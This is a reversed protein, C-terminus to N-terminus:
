GRRHYCRFVITIGHHHLHTLCMIINVLESEISFSYSYYKKDVYTWLSDRNNVQHLSFIFRLHFDLRGRTEKWGITKCLFRATTLCLLRQTMEIDNHCWRGRKLYTNHRAGCHLWGGCNFIRNKLPPYQKVGSCDMIDWGIGAWFGVRCRM